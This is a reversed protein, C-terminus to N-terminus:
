DLKGNGIEEENRAVALRPTAERCTRAVLEGDVVEAPEELCVKELAKIASRIYKPIAASKQYHELLRRKGDESAGQFHDLAEKAATVIEEPEAGVECRVWGILRRLHNMEARTLRRATM